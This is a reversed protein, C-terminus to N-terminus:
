GCPDTKGHVDNTNLITVTLPRTPDVPATTAEPGPATKESAGTAAPGSPTPDSAPSTAASSSQAGPLRATREEPSSQSPADVPTQPATCAVVLAVVALSLLCLNILTTRRM